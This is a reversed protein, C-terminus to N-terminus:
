RSGAVPTDRLPKRFNQVPTATVRPREGDAPAAIATTRDGQMIRYKLYHFCSSLDAYHSDDIDFEYILPANNDISSTPHIKMYYSEEETLGVPPTTFFDTGEGLSEEEAKNVDM